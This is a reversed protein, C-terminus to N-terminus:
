RNQFYLELSILSALLLVLYLPHRLQLFRLLLFAIIGLSLLVSRRVNNFLYLCLSLCTFFIIFFFLIFILRQDPAFANTLWGLISIGLISYVLWWPNRGRARM